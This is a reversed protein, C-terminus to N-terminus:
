GKSHVSLYRQSGVSLGSVLSLFSYTFFIGRHQQIFFLFFEMILVVYPVISSHFYKQNKIRIHIVMLWIFFQFFREFFALGVETRLGEFSLGCGDQVAPAYLPTRSYPLLCGAQTSARRLAEAHLRSAAGAFAPVGSSVKEISVM